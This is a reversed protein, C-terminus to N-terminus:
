SASCSHTYPMPWAHRASVKGCARGRARWCCVSYFCTAVFVPPRGPLMTPDILVIGPSDEAKLRSAELRKAYKPAALWPCVQLAYHACESHMPPDIFWGDPHFASGPGGIFWRGRLLKQGCIPCLDDAICHQRSREDNIAFQPTGKLDVLVTYLVPYGRADRRLGAMRAPIPVARPDM